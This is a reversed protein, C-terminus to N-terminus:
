EVAKLVTKPTTQAGKEDFAQAIADLDTDLLDAYVDLPILRTETTWSVSYGL